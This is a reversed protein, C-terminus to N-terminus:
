EARAVIDVSRLPKLDSTIVDPFIAKLFSSGSGLELRRGSAATFHREDLARCERYFREFLRRLVPKRQLVSRHATTLEVADPDLHRVAPEILWDRLKVM